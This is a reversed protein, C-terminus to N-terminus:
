VGVLAGYNWEHMDSIFDGLILFDYNRGGLNKVDGYKQTSQNVNVVVDVKATDCNEVLDDVDYNIDVLEMVHNKKEFFEDFEIFDVIEADDRNTIVEKNQGVIESEKEVVQSMEQQTMFEEDEHTGVVEVIEEKKTENFFKIEEKKEEDCIEEEGHGYSNIM